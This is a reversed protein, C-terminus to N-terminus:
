NIRVTDSLMSELNTTTFVTTAENPAVCPRLCGLPHTHALFVERFAKLFDVLDDGYPLRHAKELISKMTEDDILEDRDTSKFPMKANNGILNIKDAVLTATSNCRNVGTNDETLGTEYYKLKLFAPDTVNFKFINGLQNKGASTKEAKKVGCRLRLDNEKIQIDANRRGMISIEDSVPYAGKSEPINQYSVAPTITSGSFAALAGANHNDKEIASLQSIVPGIYYRQANGDNAVATLVLVTEGVKPKVYFMKPLLPFCYPIKDINTIPTDEPKLRVKIRDCGAPDDISLVECQRIVPIDGSAM